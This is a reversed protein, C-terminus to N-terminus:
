VNPNYIKRGRPNADMVNIGGWNIGTMVKLDAVGNYSVFEKCVSVELNYADEISKAIRVTAM